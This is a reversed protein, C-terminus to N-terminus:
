GAMEWKEFTNQSMKGDRYARKTFPNNLEALKCIEKLHDNTKQISIGTPLNYGYKILIQEVMPHIPIYVRNETKKLLVNFYKTGKEETQIDEKKLKSFDSYRLGTYCAIVFLDRVREQGPKHRLDLNLLMEIETETLYINDAETKPVSLKRSKYDNLTNLSLETADNLVIRITGLIKNVTNDTYNRGFLYNKFGLLYSVTLDSFQIRKGKGYRNVHRRATEYVQISARSYKPNKKREEIFQEFFTIFDVKSNAKTKGDLIAELESRFSLQTLTLRETAQRRLLKLAAAQLNELGQNIELHDPYDRTARARMSNDNWFRTLVKIGTSQVFREGKVRCIMVILKEDENKNKLNFRPQNM